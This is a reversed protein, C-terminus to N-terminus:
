KEYFRGVIEEGNLDSIVYTRPVTTKAKKFMFSTSGIQLMVKQLFTKINQYEQMIVLKLNLIKNNEKNFDIYIRSKVDASKM